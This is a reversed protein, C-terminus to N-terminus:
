SILNKTKGTFLPLIKIRHWRAIIVAFWVFDIFFIVILLFMNPVMSAKKVSINGYDYLM